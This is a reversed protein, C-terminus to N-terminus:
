EFLKIRNNFITSTYCLSLHVFLYIFLLAVRLSALNDFDYNETQKSAQGQLRQPPQLVV